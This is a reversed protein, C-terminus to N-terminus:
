FMFAMMFISIGIYWKFDYVSSAQDYKNGQFQQLSLVMIVSLRVMLAIKDHFELSCILRDILEICHRWIPSM